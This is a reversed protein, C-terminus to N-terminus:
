RLSLPALIPALALEVMLYCNSLRCKVVESSCKVVFESVEIFVYNSLWEQNKWLLGSETVESVFGIM